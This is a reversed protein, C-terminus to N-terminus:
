EVVEGIELSIDAKDGCTKCSWNKPDTFDAVTEKDSEKCFAISTKGCTNCKVTVEYTKDRM